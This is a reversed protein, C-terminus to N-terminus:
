KKVPPNCVSCPEYKKSADELSIATKSKVVFRCTETHYKTGSNTIYVTEGKPKEAPKDKNGEAKDPTTDKGPILESDAWLGKKSERAVKEYHRFLEMHEFPYKTYAHGYGQRV